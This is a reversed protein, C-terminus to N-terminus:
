QVYRDKAAAAWAQRPTPDSVNLSNNLIWPLARGRKMRVSGPFICYAPGAFSVCSAEPFRRLVRQKPTLRRSKDPPTTM